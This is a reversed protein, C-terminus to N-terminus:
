PSEGLTFRDSSKAETVYFHNESSKVIDEPILGGWLFGESWAIVGVEPYVSM